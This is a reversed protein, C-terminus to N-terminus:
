KPTVQSLVEKIGNFDAGRSLRKVENFKEKVEEPLTYKDVEEIIADIASFDFSEAFEKVATMAENFKEVTLMEGKEASDEDFLPALMVSYSRYLKLLEPTKAAIVVGNEEDGCRELYAAKESLELAGILKSSSKLSHVQITYNRYDKYRSYSEIDDARKKITSYYEKLAVMLIDISGCNQIATPVSIGDIAKLQDEISKKKKVQKTRDNPLFVKEPPLMRALMTELLKSDVPKSLYDTFGERLYYERAGSVVNATLAVCPVGSNKNDELNQMAHFAEVGSMGPMRHDIFIADYRKKSVIELMENGSTAWDVNIETEKLLGEFVVINMKTDDVVLVCADPARFSVQYETNSDLLKTYRSNFNGIKEWWVVQQPIKFSFESGKGYESYIELKSNMMKLLMSVINLGLGSGEITRNRNEDLREFENCMRDIDSAKIGIGTDKVSVNLMIQGNDIKDFGITLTVNGKETFKIANTVLNVICQKLRLEDGFLKHPLEEDVNIVMSLNKDKARQSSMNMIDAITSSIDYESLIIDMKGSEIKSFDLIDNIIKLLTDGSLKINNASEKVQPDDTERLIIENLGLISNIPTRIEHSMHALFMTKAESKAKEIERVKDMQEDQKKASEIHNSLSFSGIMMSLMSYIISLGVDLCFTDFDKLFFSVPFIALTVYLNTLLNTRWKYDIVWVPFLVRFLALMVFPIKRSYSVNLFVCLTALIFFLLYLFTLPHSNFIKRKAFFLVMELGIFVFACTCAIRIATINTKVLAKFGPFATLATILLMIMFSLSSLSIFIKKNFENIETKKSIFYNKESENDVSKMIHIKM